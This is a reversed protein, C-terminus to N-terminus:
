KLNRWRLEAGAEHGDGEADSEAGVGTGRTQVMPPTTCRGSLVSSQM